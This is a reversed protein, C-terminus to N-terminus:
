TSLVPGSADTSLISQPRGGAPYHKLKFKARYSRHGRRERGSPDLRVAQDSGYHWAWSIGKPFEPSFEDTDISFVVIGDIGRGIAVRDGLRIPRGKSDLM